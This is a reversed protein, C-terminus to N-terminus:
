TKKEDTEPNKKHKKQNQRNVNHHFAADLQRQEKSNERKRDRLYVFGVYFSFLGGGITFVILVVADLVSLVFGQPAPIFVFETTVSSPPSSSPAPMNTTVSVATPNAVQYHFVTGAQTYANAVTNVTINASPLGMAFAYYNSVGNSFTVEVNTFVFSGNGFGFARGNLDQFTSINDMAFFLNSGTIRNFILTVHGPTDPATQMIVVEFSGQNQYLPFMERLVSDSYGHYNANVLNNFESIFTEVYTNLSTQSPLSYSTASAVPVYQVTLLLVFAVSM